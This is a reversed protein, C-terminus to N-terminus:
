RKAVSTAVWYRTGDTEVAQLRYTFITTGSPSRRRDVFRYHAGTPGRGKAKILARNLKVTPGGSSSRFVNFGLLGTEHATRWRLEMAPGARKASFTFLKVATPGAPPAPLTVKWIDVANRGSTGLNFDGTAGWYTFTGNGNNQYKFVASTWTAAAEPIFWGADKFEFRGNPHEIFDVVQTGQSYWGM